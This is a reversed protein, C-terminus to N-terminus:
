PVWLTEKRGAQSNAVRAALYLWDSLRNIYTLALPGVPESDNLDLIRREARRCTARAFHILGALPTGGPLIFKDVAPLKSEWAAIQNQLGMVMEVTVANGKGPTQHSASRTALQAGLVFLDKQVLTFKEALDMQGDTVAKAAAMGLLSNLEDISGYAEVRPSNKNCAGDVLVTKGLDGPRNM